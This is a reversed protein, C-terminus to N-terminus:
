ARTRPRRRTCGSSSGTTEPAGPDARPRGGKTTSAKLVIRSGRDACSPSFKIAEERRLGFALEKRTGHSRERAHAALVEKFDHNLQRVQDEPNREV